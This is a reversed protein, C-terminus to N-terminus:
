LYDFCVFVVLCSIGVGFLALACLVVHLGNQLDVVGSCPAQQLTNSISLSVGNSSFPKGM